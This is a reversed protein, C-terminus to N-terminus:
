TCDTQLKLIKKTEESKESVEDSEEEEEEEEEEKENKNNIKNENDSESNNIKNKIKKKSKEERIPKATGEQIKNIIFKHLEEANESVILDIRTLLEGFGLYKKLYNMIEFKIM